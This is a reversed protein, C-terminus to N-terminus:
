PKTGARIMRVLSAIVGRALEPHDSLLEELVPRDIRLLLTPELATVTASRPEPVLAALEGVTGGAPIERLVRDGDRAVLRGTVVAFLHDEVAGHRIVEDDAAVEIETACLAVAALTRGPVGAFLPVRQLAVVRDVTSMTM